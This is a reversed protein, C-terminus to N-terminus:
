NRRYGPPKWVRSTACCIFLTSASMPSRAQRVASAHIPAGTRKATGKWNLPTAAWGSPFEVALFRIRGLEGNRVMRTAHRVMAIPPISTRFRSSQARRSRSRLLRASTESDHTLPKECVVSIGAELFARAIEFHTDNPTVVAVVDVGDARAAEREAMQRYDVYTRDAPVGLSQAMAASTQPDRAFIGPAPVYQDDLRMAHRHAAGIMAGAGGGVMGAVLRRGRPESV